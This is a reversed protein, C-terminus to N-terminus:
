GLRRMKPLHFKKYDCNIIKGIKTRLEESPFYGSLLAPGSGNKYDVEAAHKGWHLMHDIMKSIAYSSTPGMTGNNFYTQGEKLPFQKRVMRWYEKSNDQSHKLPDLSWKKSSDFSLLPLTLAGLAGKKLFERRQTM